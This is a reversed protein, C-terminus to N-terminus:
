ASVEDIHSYAYSQIKPSQPNIARKLRSKKRCGSYGWTFYSSSTRARWHLEPYKPGYFHYWYPSKESYSCLRYSDRMNLQILTQEPAYAKHSNRRGDITIRESHEFCLKEKNIPHKKNELYVTISHVIRRVNSMMSKAYEYLLVESIHVM